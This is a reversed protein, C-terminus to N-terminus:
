NVLGSSTEVKTNEGDYVNFTLEQETGPHEHQHHVRALAEGAAIAEEPTRCGAVLSAFSCMENPCETKVHYRVPKTVEPRTRTTVAAGTRSMLMGTPM